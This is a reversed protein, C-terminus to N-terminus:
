KDLVVLLTDALEQVQDILRGQLEGFKLIAESDAQVGEEIRTLREDLAVYWGPRINDTM